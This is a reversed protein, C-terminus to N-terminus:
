EAIAIALKAMFPRTVADNPDSTKVNRYEVLLDDVPTPGLFESVAAPANGGSNSV